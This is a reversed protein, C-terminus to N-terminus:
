KPRIWLGADAVDDEGDVVPGLNHDRDELLRFFLKADVDGEADLSLGKARTLQSRTYQGLDSSISHDRRRESWVVCRAERATAPGARAFASGMRKVAPGRARARSIRPL